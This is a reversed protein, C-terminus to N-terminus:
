IKGDHKRVKLQKAQHKLLSHWIEFPIAVQLRHEIEIWHKLGFSVGEFTNGVQWVANSKVCHPCPLVHMKHSPFRKIPTKDTNM